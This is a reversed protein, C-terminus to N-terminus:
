LGAQICHEIIAMTQCTSLLVTESDQQQTGPISQKAPVFYYPQDFMETGSM